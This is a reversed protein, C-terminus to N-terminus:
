RLLLGHRRNGGPTLHVVALSTADDMQWHLSTAGNWAVSRSPRKCAMPPSLHLASPTENVAVNVVDVASTVSCQSAALMALLVWPM